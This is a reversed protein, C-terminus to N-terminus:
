YTFRLGFTVRLGDSALGEITEQDFLNEGNIWFKLYDTLQKSINANMIFNEKDKGRDRRPIGSLMAYEQYDGSVQITLGMEENNYQIRPTIKHSVTYPLDKGTDKDETDLYTYGLSALLYDTFYYKMGITVGQTMAEKVNDYTRDNSNVVPVISIKNEFDNRFIDVNGIFNDGFRKNASVRLTTSEEPELDPNGLVWFPPNGPHKFQRYLQKSDPARFATGASFRLSLTKTAKWLVSLKPNIQDDWISHFDMRLAPVMIFADSFAIEDQLFVNNSYRNGSYERTPAEYDIDDEMRQYGMTFLNKNGLLRTYVIEQENYISDINYTDRMVNIQDEYDQLFLKAKLSAKDDIKWEMNLHFDYKDTTVYDMEFQNAKIDFGLEVKEGLDIGFKGMFSDGQYDGNENDERKYAYLQRLKGLGFGVNIEQTNANEDAASYTGQINTTFKKSAKKTIVNIVGSMADSGYLLSNAGKIVEIREIMSVPIESLIYKGKGRNGDVLVLTYSSDAGDIKFSDEGHAGYGLSVNLGPIWRIAELANTANQLELEKATIVTTVEPVDALTHTTRTATVVMSELKTSIQKSGKEVASATSFSVVMGLLTYAIYYYPRM